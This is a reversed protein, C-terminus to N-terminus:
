MRGFPNMPRRQQKQKGGPPDIEADQIQKPITELYRKVIEDFQGVAQTIVDTPKNRSAM